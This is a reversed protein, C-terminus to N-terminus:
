EDELMADIITYMSVRDKRWRSPRTDGDLTVYYAGDGSWHSHFVGKCRRVKPEDTYSIVVWVREGKVFPAM